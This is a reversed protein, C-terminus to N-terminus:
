HRAYTESTTGGLLIDDRKLLVRMELLVEEKFWDDIAFVITVFVIFLVIIQSAASNVTTSRPTSHVM